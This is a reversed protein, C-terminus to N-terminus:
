SNLRLKRQADVGGTELVVWRGRTIVLFAKLSYWGMEVAMSREALLETHRKHWNEWVRMELM